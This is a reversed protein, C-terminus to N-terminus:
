NKISLLIDSIYGIKAFFTLSYGKSKMSFLINSHCGIKSLLRNECKYSAKTKSPFYSIQFTALKQLFPLGIAKTKSPFYCIQFIKNAVLLLPLLSVKKEFIQEKKFSPIKPFFIIMYGKNKTFFLISLFSALKQSFPLDM